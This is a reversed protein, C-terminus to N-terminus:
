DIEVIKDILEDINKYSLFCIKNFDNFVKKM